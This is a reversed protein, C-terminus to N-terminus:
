RGHAGCRSVFRLIIEKESMALLARCMRPAPTPNGAAEAASLAAILADQMAARDSSTLAESDRVRGGTIMLETMYLMEALYSRQDAEDDGDPLEGCHEALAKATDVYPRLM